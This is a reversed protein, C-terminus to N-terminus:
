GGAVLVVVQRERAFLVDYQRVSDADKTEPARIQSGSAHSIPQRRRWALVSRREHNTPQPVKETADVGIAQGYQEEDARGMPPDGSAHRLLRIAPPFAICGGRIRPIRTNTAPITRNIKPTASISEKLEWTELKKVPEGVSRATHSVMPTTTQM